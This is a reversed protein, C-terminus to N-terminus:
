SEDFAAAETDAEVTADAEGDKQKDSRVFGPPILVKTCLYDIFNDANVDSSKMMDETTM